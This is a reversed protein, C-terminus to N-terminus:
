GAVVIGFHHQHAQRVGDARLQFLQMRQIMRAHADDLSGLDDGHIVRDLHRQALLLIRRHAHGDSLDLFALGTGADGGAIGARQHRHRAIHELREFADLPRGDGGGDRVLLAPAGGHQVQAGIGVALGLVQQLERAHGFGHHGHDVVLFM